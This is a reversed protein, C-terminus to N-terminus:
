GVSCAAGPRCAHYPPDCIFGALDLLRRSGFQARQDELKAAPTLLQDAEDTIPLEAIMSIIM